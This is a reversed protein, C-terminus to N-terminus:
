DIRKAEYVGSSDTLTLATARGSSDTKFAIRADLRRAHVFEGGLAPMLEAPVGGASLWSLKGGALSIALKNGGLEYTGTLNRLYAPDSLRADPQKAFTAAALATEIPMQVASIRGALDTQFQIRGDLWLSEPDEIDADFVDYHWHSLPSSDDNYRGVLKKGDLRITIPGYGPHTYTGAYDALAHSPRTGAVRTGGKAKRASVEEAEGATKRALAEGVWDKGSAGLFRDLIARTLADRLESGGQNVLVTVGLKQEPILAVLTSIGPLNGGHSVMRRGRYIDTFWGLGYGTPVMEPDRVTQGTVMNTKHMEALTSPQIIQRGEIAGGGLNVLMWKALDAATSYVGGAPNLIPTNSFLPVNLRKGNLVETGTTHNPDASAKAITFMTRSMGLPRFIREETFSEWDKGSVRDIALGSLVFM